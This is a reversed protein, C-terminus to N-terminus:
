LHTSYPLSKIYDEMFRWDINDDRDVPLTIKENLLRKMRVQRGYHFKPQMQRLLVAMFVSTYHNEHKQYKAKLIFTHINDDSFYEYGHYFVNGLMDMTIKNKFLKKVLIFSNEDVLGAIGNNLSTSTLLPINGSIRDNKNLREGKYVDFVDSLNFAAHHKKHLAVGEGSISDKSVCETKGLVFLSGAYQRVFHEFHEQKTSAYDVTIHKEALWEDKEGVSVKISLGPIEERNLYHVLWQKKVQHWVNHYDCRGMNKIKVFGDDSWMGFYTKFNQPHKEKARVVMACTAIAVNSNYFLELPMSLVAELTHGAMLKRKLELQEGHDALACSSPVIAICLSGKKLYELNNLMFDMEERSHKHTKYPPNLLGVNPHYKEIQQAVTASFCDGKIMNSRGDGHIYMNSCALSFIDHQIEVGIIQRDKIEKEKNLDKGADVIMKRLASILFGGTGACTDLVVSNKNINAMECFLDTIHLPTLVIGLQSDNSTYRLFEIYFQGLIDFYKHTKIFDNIKQDIDGILDRLINKQSHLISHTKIFSYTDIIDKLNKNQVTSIKNKITLILNESLEEPTQHPYAYVFAKDSLAILIGSILLSRRSQEVKNAHLVDNLEKSYKLLGEFDSNFKKDDTKYGEVYDSLTLLADDNFVRHPEATKKIQLFHSVRLRTKQEGSIAISLVDFEKALFSSYLLVGDVAFRAYNRREPSEHFNENPKCEVVIVFEPTDTFQIIFDPYGKGKGAKSANVLLSDIKPNKSSQEELIVNGNQYRPDQLMAARFISETIRENTMAIIIDNKITTFEDAVTSLNGARSCDM